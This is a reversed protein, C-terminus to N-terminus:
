CIDYDKIDSVYIKGETCYICKNDLRVKPILELMKSDKCYPCNDRHYYDPCEFVHNDKNRPNSNIGNCSPCPIFPLQRKM